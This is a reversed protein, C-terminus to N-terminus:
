RRSTVLRLSMVVLLVLVVADLVLAAATFRMARSISEALVSARESAPTSGSTAFALWLGGVTGVLSVAFGVGLMWPIARLWRPAAPRRGLWWAWFALGLALLDM